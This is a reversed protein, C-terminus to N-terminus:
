PPRWRRSGRCPWRCGPPGSSPGAPSNPTPPSCPESWPNPLYPNPHPPGPYPTQRLTFHFIFFPSHLITFSAGPTRSTHIRTGESTRPKVYHLIFFPSHLIRFPLAILPNIALGPLASRGHIPRRGRSLTFLPDDLSAM